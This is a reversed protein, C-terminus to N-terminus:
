EGDKIDIKNGKKEKANLKKRLEEVEARLNEIEKKASEAIIETTKIKEGIYGKKVNEDIFEKSVRDLPIPKSPDQPKSDISYTSRPKIWYLEKEKM